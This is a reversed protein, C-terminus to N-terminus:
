QSNHDRLYPALLPFGSSTAGSLNGRDLSIVRQNPTLGAFMSDITSQSVGEARAKAAVQALYADFSGEQACAPLAALPLLLLASLASVLRRALMVANHWARGPRHIGETEGRPSHRP